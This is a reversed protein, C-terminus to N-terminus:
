GACPQTTKWNVDGLFKKGNGKHGGLDTLCNMLGPSIGTEFRWEPELHTADYFYYQSNLCASFLLGAGLCLLCKKMFFTKPITSTRDKKYAPELYFFRM